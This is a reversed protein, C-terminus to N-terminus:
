LLNSVQHAVLSLHHNIGAKLWSETSGTGKSDIGQSKKEMYESYYKAKEYIFDDGNSFGKGKFSNDSILIAANALYMEFKQKKGKMILWENDLTYKISTTPHFLQVQKDYIPHQITYDSFAPVRLVSSDVLFAKWSLWDIRPILNEDDIRCGSLDKPFSGSSFTFTRWSNLSIIKQSLKFYKNYKEDNDGTCKIDILLDVNQVSLGTVLILKKIKENLSKIDDLDSLVLRLCAGINNKSALNEITKIIEIDDNLYFVPTLNGGLSSGAKIVSKLTKIKLELSYLLSVDLFLQSYGWVKIIKSPIQDIQEGFRGILSDLNEDKKENPMVLQILPTIFEKQKDNLFELAGQEARKWKLIPIYHKYNFM